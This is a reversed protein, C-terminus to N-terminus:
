DPGTGHHPPSPVYEKCWVEGDVPEVICNLGRRKGYEACVDHKQVDTLSTWGGSFVGGMDNVATCNPSPSPSPNSPPPSPNSPPPSSGDCFFFTKPMGNGLCEDKSSIAACVPNPKVGKDLCLNRDGCTNSINKCEKLTMIRDNDTVGEVMFVRNVLLYLAFGILIRFFCTELDINM